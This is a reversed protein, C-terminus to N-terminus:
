QVGAVHRHDLKWTVDASYDGQSVGTRLQNSHTLIVVSDYGAVQTLLDIARQGLLAADLADVGNRIKLIGRTHSKRRLAPAFQEVHGFLIIQQNDFVVRIEIESKCFFRRP